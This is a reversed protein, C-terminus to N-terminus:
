IAIGGKDLVDLIRLMRSSGDPGRQPPTQPSTRAKNIFGRWNSQKNKDLGHRTDDDYKDTVPRGKDLYAETLNDLDSKFESDSAYTKSRLDWVALFFDRGLLATLDYHGQEHSLLAVQEDHPLGLAWSAVWSEDRSFLINVRIDSLQQRVPRANRLPTLTYSYEVRAKTEAADADEGVKPPPLKRHPFDRWNLTRNLNHLVWSM